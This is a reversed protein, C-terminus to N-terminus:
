LTRRMYTGGELTNYFINFMESKWTKSSLSEEAMSEANCGQRDGHPVPQLNFHFRSKTSSHFLIGRNWSNPHHGLLERILYGLEEVWRWIGVWQAAVGVHAAVSLDRRIYVIRSVQGRRPTKCIIQKSKPLKHQHSQAHCVEAWWGRLIDVLRPHLGTFPRHKEARWHIFFRLYNRNSM